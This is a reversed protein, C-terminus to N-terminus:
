LTEIGLIKYYITLSPDRSNNRAIFEWEDTDGVLIEGITWSPNLNVVHRTGVGGGHIWYLLFAGGFARPDPGASLVIAASSGGKMLSDNSAIRVRTQMVTEGGVISVMSGRLHKNAVLYEIDANASIWPSGPAAELPKTYVYGTSGDTIVFLAKDPSGDIIATWEHEQVRAPEWSLPVVRNKVVSVPFAHSYKIDDYLESMSQYRTADVPTTDKTDGSFFVNSVKGDSSHGYGVSVIRGSRAYNSHSLIYINPNTRYGMIFLHYHNAPLTINASTIQTVVMIDTVLAREIGKYWTTDDLYDNILDELDQISFINTSNGNIYGTQVSNNILRKSKNDLETVEGLDITSGDTMYFILHNNSDITCSRVGRSVLGHVIGRVGCGSM